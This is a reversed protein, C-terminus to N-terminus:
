VRSIIHHRVPPYSEQPALREAAYRQFVIQFCTGKGVQTDLSLNLKLANCIRHVIALGLGTGHKKTSFFPQFVRARMREPIGPGTDCVQLEIQGSAPDDAIKFCVSGPRAELAECANIALNVLVQKILDEDGVAYVIAADTELRISISDHYSQHHRVIEIVDNVLHCLEIKSYTPRGIRAYALFDTLIRNLRASEKMILELLRANEGSLSRDRSLLEVSGSIAALPNRIEHAISASLEGVAALRDASRMKEEMAKADTLDTFIAIVGRLGNEEDILKSISVGLPITGGDATAIVIEKRPAEIGHRAGDMLCEAFEPMRGAFVQECSLGRVEHERYGLIREAARNFYIIHGGSDITLLGSNLHRLIDDTELRAQRLAMSTDALTRAQASLREALYGSIFAVLFFILIHVFISYFVLDQTMFITQLTQLTLASNNAVAFGAWIIFTYVLSVLSATLLTGVLRYVLAASVITLLFLASFPSNINGTAYIIGGELVIEALFQCGILIRSLAALSFRRELAITLVFGLTCVSYAILPLHLFSPFRLWFGVVATMIVYSILRLPLFWGLRRRREQQEM